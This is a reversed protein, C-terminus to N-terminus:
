RLTLRNAGYELVMAVANLGHCSTQDFSTPFPNGDHLVPHLYGWVMVVILCSVQATM